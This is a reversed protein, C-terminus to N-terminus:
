PAAFVKNCLAGLRQQQAVDGADRLAHSMFFPVGVVCLVDGKRADIEHLDPLWVAEDGVGSLPKWNAFENMRGSTFSQLRAVGHGPRLSVSISGGGRAHSATIFHCTQPDGQLQETGTIPEDLIGSVDAVNLLKLDCVSGSKSPAASVSKAASASSASLPGGQSCAALAGFSICAIINSTRM